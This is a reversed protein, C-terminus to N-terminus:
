VQVHVKEHMGGFRGVAVASATCCCRAGVAFLLNSGIQCFFVAPAVGGDGRRQGIESTCAIMCSSSYVFFAGSCFVEYVGSSVEHDFRQQQQQQGQSGAVRGVAVAAEDVAAERRIREIMLRIEEQSPAAADLENIGALPDDDEEEEEDHRNDRSSRRGVSLSRPKANAKEVSLRKKTGRRSSPANVGGVASSREQSLSSVTPRELSGGRRGRGSAPATTSQRARAATPQTRMM